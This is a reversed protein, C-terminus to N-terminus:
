TRLKDLLTNLLESEAADLQIYKDDAAMIQEDLEALLSLGKNTIFVEVQRRDNACSKREVFQKEILKDVLRSANSNKDLMREQIGNVGIAKGKQGRLIRLVNFQEPSIGYSKFLQLQQSRLWNATFIINLIAKQKHSSFHQQQIEHEITSM